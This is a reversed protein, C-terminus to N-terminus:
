EEQERRMWCKIVQGDGTAYRSKCFDYLVILRKEEEGGEM